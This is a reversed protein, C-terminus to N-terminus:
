SAHQEETTLRRFLWARALRWHRTVTARSCQVVEATEDVTLGAFFHAEVIAAKMPDFTALETLADDLAVVDPPTEVPIEFLQELSLLPVGEGRKKSGRARAHDVLIRRMINGAVGFFHRRSQWQMKNQRVLRMFAENVLAAPQLTHDAREGRLQGRAMRRLEDYVEPLFKEAAARDGESWAVILETLDPSRPETKPDSTEMLGNLM